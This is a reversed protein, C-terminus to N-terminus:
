KFHWKFLEKSIEVQLSSVTCSFEFSAKLRARSVSSFSVHTSGLLVVRIGEPSTLVTATPPLDDNSQSPGAGGESAGAVDGDGGGDEAPAAENHVGDAAVLEAEAEAIEARVAERVAMARDTM